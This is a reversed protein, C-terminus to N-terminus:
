RAPTAEVPEDTVVYVLGTATIVIPNTGWMEVPRYIPTEMGTIGLEVSALLANSELDFFAVTSPDGTTMLVTGSVSLAMDWRASVGTLPEGLDGTELEVRHVGAQDAVTAAVPVYMADDTLVANGRFDFPDTRFQLELTEANFFLITAPTYDRIAEPDESRPAQIATLALDQGRVQILSLIIDAGYDDVVEITGLEEGTERDLALVDGSPQSLFV